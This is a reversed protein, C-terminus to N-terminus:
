RRSSRTPRPATIARDPRPPGELQRRRWGGAQRRREARRRGRVAGDGQGGRWAAATHHVAPLRLRPRAAPPPAAAARRGHRRPRQGRRWTSGGSGSSHSPTIPAAQRRAAASVDACASKCVRSWARTNGDTSQGQQAQSSVVERHLAAAMASALRVAFPVAEPRTRSMLHAVRSTRRRHKSHLSSM